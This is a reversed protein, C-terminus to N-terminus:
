YFWIAVLVYWIFSIWLSLKAAISSMLLEFLKKALTRQM